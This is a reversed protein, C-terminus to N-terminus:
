VIWIVSSIQFLIHSFIKSFWFKPRFKLPVCSVTSMWNNLFAHFRKLNLSAIWFHWLVIERIEFKIKIIVFGIQSSFNSLLQLLHITISLFIKMKISRSQERIPWGRVVAGGPWCWGSFEILVRYTEFTLNLIKVRLLPILIFLAIKPTKPSWQLEVKVNVTHVQAKLSNRMKFTLKMRENRFGLTNLAKEINWSRVWQETIVTPEIGLRPEVAM